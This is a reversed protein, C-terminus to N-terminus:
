GLLPWSGGAKLYGRLRVCEEKVNEVLPSRHGPCIFRVDEYLCRLASSTAAALDPTVPRAMLRLHDGVVALADGCFLTQTPQHIYAVHGATHVPTTLVRFDGELVEGDTVLHSAM